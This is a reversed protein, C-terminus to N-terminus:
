AFVALIEEAPKRNKGQCSIARRVKFNVLKAQRYHERVFGTDHNSILVPIGRKALIKATRVLRQQDQEHFGNASYGTFNATSSLPAYPPDCYVVDGKRAKLMFAEFDESVYQAKRSHTALNLLAPEPFLVRKYRGFPVNYEGKSNYRCLGNYGHKNLYLFLSARVRKSRSRNFKERLRYYQEACNNQECFLPRTRHTYAGLDEQVTRYFSILDQNLDNLVYADFPVNLSVVGSGAFPELLRKGKPLQACIQDLIQYKGGAWKLPSRRRSFSHPDAM